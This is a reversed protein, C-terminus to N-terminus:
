KRKKHYPEMPVPTEGEEKGMGGVVTEGVNNCYHLGETITM